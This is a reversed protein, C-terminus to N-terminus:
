PVMRAVFGASLNADGTNLDSSGLMMESSFVGGITTSNASAGTAVRAVAINSIGQTGAADGYPHACVFSGDVGSLQALFADLATNSSASLGLTDMSGEFNGAFIVDGSSSVAVSKAKQDYNADGFSKAWQPALTTDLKMVFADTLGAYPMIVGGGLDIAAGISGAAIINNNADVTLSYADSRGANGWPQAAIVAGTTGDLKAVFLIATSSDAAPFATTAGGFNLTGNYNGAIIVDGNNDITVAECVQDGAGGFQEGWIVAGTSADIKAVVIDMGGGAVATGTPFIVGKTAGSTSWNPVVKSTKGCIAIANQGPNSGASMLAGNGVDVMHVTKPIPYTGTSAGDFLAYFYISSSNQLFDIGANGPNGSPGSGDSNDATFDIEGTFYGILGVNGSSAIAVGTADQAQNGTDGFDFAATALGTSPDIKALFIDSKRSAPLQDGATYPVQGSGFDFAAYLKGAAWPTGDPAAALGELTAATIVPSASTGADPPSTRIWPKAWSSGGVGCVSPPLDPPAPHDAPPLDALVDLLLLADLPPAPLDVIADIASSEPPADAAGSTEPLVHDFGADTAVGNSADGIGDPRADPGPGVIGGSGGSGSQGGAGTTGASGGSGGTGGRDAAVDASGSAALDITAESGGDEAEVTAGDPRADLNYISSVNDSPADISESAGVADGAEPSEGGTREAGADLCAADCYRRHGADVKEGDASNKCAAALGIFLTLLVGPRHLHIRQWVSAM